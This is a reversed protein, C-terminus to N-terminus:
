GDHPQIFKRHYFNQVSNFVWLIDSDLTQGQIQTLYYGKIQAKTSLTWKVVSWKRQTLAATESGQLTHVLRIPSSPAYDFCDDDNCDQHLHRTKRQHKPTSTSSNYPKKPRSPLLQVTLYPISDGNFSPRPGLTDVGMLGEQSDDKGGGEKQEGPIFDADRSFDSGFIWAAWSQM